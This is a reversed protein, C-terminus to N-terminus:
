QFTKTFLRQIGAHRAGGCAYAEETHATMVAHRRYVHEHIVAGDIGNNHIRIICLKSVQAIGGAIVRVECFVKRIVM